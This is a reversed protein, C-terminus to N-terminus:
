QGNVIECAAENHPMISRDSPHTLYVSSDPVARVQEFLGAILGLLMWFFIRYKSGLTVADTLSFLLHAFLGGSLGLVLSRTLVGSNISLIRLPHDGSLKYTTKWIAALLWFAVIHLALFAILGPVGVDLATQLFENHAHGFDHDPSILFLPYLVRVVHRFTNMGMGTLPFDQIAYIARSWIEVRQELSNVAAAPDGAGQADLLGQGLTNAGSPLAVGVVLIATLFLAGLLLWRRRPPVAILGILVGTLGLGVTGGRSQTLVFVGTVFVTALILLSVLGIARRREVAGLWDRPRALALGSVTVLAPIVWLLAGAVENPNLGEDIGPLGILIPHLRSVIPGLVTLKIGWQTGLLGLGALGVGAIVFLGFNVWWGRPQRGSLAYVYLLSIGFATGAIEPLSVAIDYTAFLSVLVMVMLFLIATDFTTHQIFRGTTVRNGIWILPLLILALTRWGGPFFIWPAAVALTV